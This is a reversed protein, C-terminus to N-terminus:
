PVVVSAISSNADTGDVGVRQLNVSMPTVSLGQTSRSPWLAQQTCRYHQFAVLGKLRMSAEAQEQQQETIDLTDLPVNVATSAIMHLPQTQKGALGESRSRPSNFGCCCM